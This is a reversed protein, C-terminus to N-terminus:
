RKQFLHSFTRGYTTTRYEIVARLDTDMLFEELDKLRTYSVAPEWHHLLHRNFGAAGFTSAFLGDGFIRTVAGHDVISYDLTSLANEDRHELLQRLAGLLPFVLAVGFLWAAAAGWLGVIALIAIIGGHIATGLLLQRDFISVADPTQSGDQDRANVETEFKKRALLVEIARIGFFSKFLFVLNLPFFYTHESDKTTGLARHHQFHVKRYRRVDMGALWSIYSNCIRDSAERHSALNWHAGEHLFLQLYAIWYGVLIMGVAIIIIRPVGAFEAVIAMVLTLALATWGLAIDWYAVRYHPELSKTFDILAVGSRDRIRGRLRGFSNSYDIRTSASEAAADARQDMWM